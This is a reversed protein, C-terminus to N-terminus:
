LFDLDLDRKMKDLTPNKQALHEYKEQTTFLKTKTDVAKLETTLQLDAIGTIQRLSQLVDTSHANFEEQDVEHSLFVKYVHHDYQAEMDQKALISYLANRGDNLLEECLQKYADIPDKTIGGGVGLEESLESISPTHIGSDEDSESTSDNEENDSLSIATTRRVREKKRRGEKPASSAISQVEQVEGEAAEKTRTAQDQAAEEPSEITPSPLHQEKEQITSPDEQSPAVSPTAAVNEPDVKETSQAPTEPEKLIRREPTENKKETGIECLNLLCVEILLRSNPATRYKFETESILPLAEKLWADEIASAQEGYRAKVSDGVELLSLTSPTKCILLDRLHASFGSLFHAGDFGQKLVDDLLLLAQSLDSHFVYETIKFFYEYDLVHLNKLVDQYNLNDNTFSALQDFISLADRMAGDAKQAIVHLAEEEFQIHENTAISQLQGVIAEVSIRNFDYIQCRSLITPIIKHKETTALIFIAHKPPEELTKLFANFAQKSLMHVEDIIYVKYKGVQPPIRVQDTLARIDDVSNNSAADLEFINFAFDEDDAQQDDRNIEKAFIRACTTKGVGRPGCFLYAHALHDQAISKSLTETISEQGIVETWAEPRYKRASVIFGNQETSM